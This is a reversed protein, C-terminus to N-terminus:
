LFGCLIDYISLFRCRMGSIRQNPSTKRGSSEPTEIPTKTPKVVPSPAAGGIPIPGYGPPTPLEDYAVTRGSKHAKIADEFQKVIRGYRRAKSSNGEEKAKMEHEKYVELRQELAELVTSATILTPEPLNAAEEPVEIEPPTARQTENTEVASTSTTEEPPGPMNALDVTHGSKVAEIVVEFQKSIKVFKVAVATNGSKKARLAAIKYEKQRELLMDLLENDIDKKKEEVNDQVSQPIEIPNPETAPEPTPEQIPIAPAPRSPKSVSGDQAQNSPKNEGIHIDPPITDDQLNVNVGKQAQSVLGKLTKIARAYRRAKSTEGSQKATSEAIQYNNLRQTLIELTNTPASRGQDEQQHPQSQSPSEDEAEGEFVNYTYSKLSLYTKTIM